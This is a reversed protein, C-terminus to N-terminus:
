ASVTAATASVREFRGTSDASTSGVSKDVAAIAAATVDAPWFTTVSRRSTRFTMELSFGPDVPSHSATMVIHNTERKVRSAPRDGNGGLWQGQASLNAVMMRLQALMGLIDALENPKLPITWCPGSIEATFSTPPEGEEPEPVTELMGLSWNSGSLFGISSKETGEDQQRDGPLVLVCGSEDCVYGLGQLEDISAQVGPTSRVPEGSQLNDLLANAAALVDEVSQQQAAKSDKAVVVRHARSADTRKPALPASVPQRPAHQSNPM